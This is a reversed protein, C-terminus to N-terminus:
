VHDEDLVNIEKKRPLSPRCILYFKNAMNEILRHFAIFTTNLIFPDSLTVHLSVFEIVLYPQGRM